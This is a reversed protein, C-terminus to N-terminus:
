LAIALLALCIGLLALLFAALLWAHYQAETM